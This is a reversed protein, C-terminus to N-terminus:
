QFVIEGRCIPLCCCPCPQRRLGSITNAWLEKSQNCGPVEGEPEQRCGRAAEGPVGEDGFTCGTGRDQPAAGTSKGFGQVSVIISTPPSLRPAVLAVSNNVERLGVWFRLLAFRDVVTVLTNEIFMTNLTANRMMSAVM